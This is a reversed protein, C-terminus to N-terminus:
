KAGKSKELGCRLTKTLSSFCMNGNCSEAEQVWRTYQKIKKVLDEMKKNNRIKLVYLGTRQEAFGLLKM